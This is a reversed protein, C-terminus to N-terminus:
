KGPGSGKVPEKRPNVCPPIMRRENPKEWGTQPFISIQADGSAEIGSKRRRGSSERREEEV